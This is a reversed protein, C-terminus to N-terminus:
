SKELEFFTLDYKPTKLEEKKIVKNFASYDPFFTDADFEGSVLTLYLKDDAESLNEVLTHLHQPCPYVSTNTPM